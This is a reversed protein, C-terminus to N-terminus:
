LYICRWQESTKGQVKFKSGTRSCFLLSHGKEYPVTSFADDPHTSALDPYLSTDINRESMHKISDRLDNLGLLADFHRYSEGKLKGTIKRELFMTWGENLWFHEWTRNTVLNGTWSHSIEHAVVDALSRDGAILSPSLFTLCPNEMGGYPFSPPLVLLDYRGWRYPGAVEEATKLFTETESFESAAAELQEPETWVLSRPGIEKSKLNGVALAMLYSPIRTTQKFSYGGDTKKMENAGMLVTLNSHPEAVSVRADFTFKVSPSDQCPFLSRAHISQCQTFMYPYQGGITQEKPIWQMASADFTSYEITLTFEREKIVLNVVDEAEGSTRPAALKKIRM